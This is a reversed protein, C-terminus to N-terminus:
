EALSAVSSANRHASKYVSAVVPHNVKTVAADTLKANCKDVNARSALDGHNLPACVRDAAGRIRNLLTTAGDVSDLNLDSYRVIVDAGTVGGAFTPAATALTFAAIALLAGRSKTQMSITM